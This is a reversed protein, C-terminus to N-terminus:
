KVELVDAGTEGCLKENYMPYARGPIVHSIGPAEARLYYSFHHEGASLNGFYVCVRDDRFEVNAAAKADGGELFDAAFEFGAPRRDEVLVYAQAQTLTLTVRVEIPQGAAVPGHLPEGKATNYKRLMKLETGTPEVQDLHQYGTANLAYLVSEDCHTQMQIAAGANFNMTPAVAHVSYSRQKLEDLTKAELLSQGDVVVQIKRAPAPAPLKQVFGALAEIARSTDWTSNWRQGQRQEGLKAAIIRGDALAGFAVDLNLKLALEDTKDPQWDKVEDWWHSADGKLGANLFALALYGAFTKSHVKVAEAGRMLGVADMDVAHALALAHWARATLEADFQKAALQNKVYACAKKLVSDDVDTGASKCRALGYLVYVTMANNTQDKEWWGWGGDDHQFNYLRTLGTELVAPLRKLVDDPLVAAGDQMARKVVVAPLFRSMTQEVCGHPYDVLYGLGDLCEWPNSRTLSLRLDTPVFGAPLSINGAVGNMAVEFPRGNPYVTLTRKEADSTGTGREATPSPNPSPNGARLGVNAQGSVDFSLPLAVTASAHAAITVTGSLKGAEAAAGDIEWRYPTTIAQATNNHILGTAQLRDGEVAFRPLMVQVSLPLSATLANKATGIETAQTLGVATLRYRTLSDPLKFQTHITGDAGTRLQPLWAATERFDNRWPALPIESAPMQGLSHLPAPRLEHQPEPSTEIQKAADMNNQMAEMAKQLCKAEDDAMKQAFQANRVTGIRWAKPLYLRDPHASAFTGALAGVKDEGFAYVSEDVASLSVEAARPHGDPDSVRINVGVTDGPHYDKRESDVTLKLREGIQTSRMDIVDVRCWRPDDGAAIVEDQVQEKKALDQMQAQALENAYAIQGAGDSLICGQLYFNPLERERIPLEVVHYPGDGSLTVVKCDVITRGEFTFLVRQANGPAYVLLKLTGGVEAHQKDFLAWLDPVRYLPEREEDKQEVQDDRLQRIRDPRLGRNEGSYCALNVWGPPWELLPPKEEAGLKVAEYSYGNFRETDPAEAGGYVFIPVNGNGCNVSWWGPSSFKLAAVGDKAFFHSSHHATKTYGDAEVGTSNEGVHVKVEEGMRVFRPLDALAIVAGPPANSKTAASQTVTQGSDDTVACILHYSGAALQPPVELTVAAPAGSIAFDAEALPRWAEPQVLRIHGKGASLPKGFYYNAAATITLKTGPVLTEPVGSLSIEFNPRRYCQVAFLAPVIRPSGGSFVRLSCAGTAAEDSLQFSGACTGYDNVRLSGQAVTRNKPDLVEYKVESNEGPLALQSAVEFDQDRFGTTRAETGTVPSSTAPASARVVEGLLRLILKFNVDQGPRYVPRDTYAAVVSRDEYVHAVAEEARAYRRQIRNHLQRRFEYSDDRVIGYIGDFIRGFGGIACRGDKFAVISKDGGAFVKAFAVGSGDTTVEQLIGNAFIHAGAVPSKGDHDSAVALVGDRCRRLALELPDVIVPAYAKQGNAEAVLIYAGSKQLATAPIDVIKGCQWATPEGDSRGYERDLRQEYENCDDGFYDSDPDERRQEDDWYHRREWRERVSRLPVHASSLAALDCTWAGAVDAESLKPPQWGAPEHASQHQEIDYALKEIAMARELDADHGAFVFDWGIRKMVTLLDDPQQVRYLKFSVREAARTDLVIAGPHGSTYDATVDMTLVTNNRELATVWERASQAPHQKLLAVARTVDPAAPDDVTWFIGRTSDLGSLLKGRGRKLSALTEKPLADIMWPEGPHAETWPWQYDIRERLKDQADRMENAIFPAHWQLHPSLLGLAGAFRLETSDAAPIDADPTIRLFDAATAARQADKTAQKFQDLLEARRKALEAPPIGAGPTPPENKAIKVSKPVISVAQWGVCLAVLVLAAVAAIAPWRMNRQPWHPRQPRQRSVMERAMAGHVRGLAEPALAPRSRRLAQDLAYLRGGPDQLEGPTVGNLGASEPTEAM